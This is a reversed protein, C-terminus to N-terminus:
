ARRCGRDYYSNWSGSWCCGYKINAQRAQAASSSWSFGSTGISYTSYSNRAGAITSGCIRIRECGSSAGNRLSAFDCDYTNSDTPRVEQEM